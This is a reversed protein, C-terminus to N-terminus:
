QGPQSFRGLYIGSPRFKEQRHLLPKDMVLPQDVDFIHLTKIFDFRVVSSYTDAGKARMMLQFHRGYQLLFKSRQHLQFLVDGINSNSLSSCESTIKTESFRMGIRSY